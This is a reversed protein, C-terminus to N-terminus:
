EDPVEIYFSDDREKHEVRHGCDHCWIPGTLMRYQDIKESGCKPCKCIKKTKKEVIM